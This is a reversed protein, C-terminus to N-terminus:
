IRTHPTKSRHSIPSHNLFPHCNFSRMLAYSWTWHTNCKADTTIRHRSNTCMKRSYIFRFALRMQCSYLLWIFRFICINKDFPWYAIESSFFFLPHSPFLSQAFTHTISMSYIWNRYEMPYPGRSSSRLPLNEVKHMYDSCVIWCMYKHRIIM